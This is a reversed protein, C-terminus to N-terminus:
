MGFNLIKPHSLAHAPFPAQIIPLVSCPAIKLTSSLVTDWSLASNYFDWYYDM